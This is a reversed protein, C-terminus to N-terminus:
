KLNLSGFIDNLDTPFGAKNELEELKRKSVDDYEETYVTGGNKLKHKNFRM